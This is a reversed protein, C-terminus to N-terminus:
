HKDDELVRVSIFGGPEHTQSDVIAGAYLGHPHDDPVNVVLVPRQGERVEFRIDKLPEKTRDASHLPPVAPSFRAPSSRLDFKVQAPKKSKVEVAVDSSPAGPGTRPGALRRVADFFDVGVVGFEKSLRLARELCMKLDSDFDASSYSGERLRQAARQGQLIHEDVVGYALKVAQDIVKRHAATPAAAGASEASQPGPSAGGGRYPGSRAPDPKTARPNTAM